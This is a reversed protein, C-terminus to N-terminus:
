SSSVEFREVGIPAWSPRTRVTFTGSTGGDLNSIEFEILRGETGGNAVDEEANNNGNSPDRIQNPKPDSGNFRTLFFILGALILTGLALARWPKRGGANPRRVSTMAELEDEQELPQMPM